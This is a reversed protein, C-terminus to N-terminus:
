ENYQQEWLDHLYEENEDVWDSVTQDTNLTGIWRDGTPQWSIPRDLYGEWITFFRPSLLDNFEMEEVCEGRCGEETVM